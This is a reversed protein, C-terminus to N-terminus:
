AGTCMKLVHCVKDVEALWSPLRTFTERRTCDFCFLIVNWDPYFEARVKVYALDGSLDFFSPVIRVMGGGFSASPAVPRLQPSPSPFYDVGITPTYTFSFADQSAEVYRGVAKNHEHRYSKILCTKGVSQEGLVLVKLRMSPRQALTSQGRLTPMTFKFDDLAQATAATAM